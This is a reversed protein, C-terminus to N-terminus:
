KRWQARADLYADGGYCDNVVTAPFDEVVLRRIAETGLDEYAILEASKITRALLAGAGGIGGFYVAKHTQCAAKVEASRPGKGIMGKLGLALLAPAYADM